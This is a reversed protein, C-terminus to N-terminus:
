LTRAWPLSTTTRTVGRSRLRWARDALASPMLAALEGGAFVGFGLELFGRPHGSAGRRRASASFAWASFLKAWASRM